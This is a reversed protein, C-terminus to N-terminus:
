KEKQETKPDYYKYHQILIGNSWTEKYITGDPFIIEGSGYKKDLKFTGIYKTNNASWLIGNGDKM